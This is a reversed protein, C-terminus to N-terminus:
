NTSVSERLRNLKNRITVDINANALSLSAGGLTSEDHNEHMIVRKAGTYQSKAIDELQSKVSPDLPFKSTVSVEVIGSQVARLEAVDRMLSDLEATKGADILYAAVENAIEQDSKGSEMSSRVYEALKLRSFKAM